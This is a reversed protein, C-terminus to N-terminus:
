LFFDQNLVKEIVNDFPARIGGTPDFSFGFLGDLIVDYQDNLPEPLADIFNLQLAECQKTLRQLHDNDKRKPYLIDLTKVGFQNLHRAAVLADGLGCHNQFFYYPTKIWQVKEGFCQVAFGVEMIELVLWVFYKKQMPIHKWHELLVLWVLLSWWNNTQLDLLM